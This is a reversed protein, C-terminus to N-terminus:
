SGHMGHAIDEERSAKLMLHHLTEANFVNKRQIAVEQYKENQSDPLGLLSCWYACRRLVLEDESMTLWAAPDKPMAFVVLLRPVMSRVRLDDYNKRTLRFDFTGDPIPDIVSAKLQVGLQPSMVTSEPHLRGRARIHLDISDRDKRVIECAYKARSAIAHIYAYSLEEKIDNDSLM